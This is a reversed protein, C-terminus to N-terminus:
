PQQVGALQDDEMFWQFNVGSFKTLHKNLMDRGLIGETRVLLKLDQYRGQYRVVNNVDIFDVTASTIRIMLSPTRQGTEPDVVGGRDYSINPNRDAIYRPISTADSGTDVIADFVDFVMNRKIDTIRLKVIPCPPNENLADYSFM